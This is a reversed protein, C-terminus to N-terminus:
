GLFALYIAGSASWIVEVLVCTCVVGMFGCVCLCISVCGVAVLLTIIAFQSYHCMGTIEANPLCVCTFRQKLDAQDASCLELIALVVFLDHRLVFGWVVVFHLQLLHVM